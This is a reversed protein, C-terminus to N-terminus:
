HTGKFYEAMRRCEEPRNGDKYLTHCEQECTTCRLACLEPVEYEPHHYKRNVIHHAIIDHKCGCVECIWLPEGSGLYM